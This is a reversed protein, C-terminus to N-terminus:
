CFLNDLVISLSDVINSIRRHHEHILCKIGIFENNWSVKISTTYTKWSSATNHRGKSNSFLFYYMKKTPATLCFIVFTTNGFGRSLIHSPMDIRHFEQNHYWRCNFFIEKARCWLLIGKSFQITGRKRTNFIELTELGNTSLFVERQSIAFSRYSILCQENSM